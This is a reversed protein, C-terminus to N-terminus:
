EELSKRYARPSLSLERQFVQNMALASGFGAARAVQAIRLEKDSLLRKALELRLRRIEASVPRGLTAEFKRQLSRPAVCIGEAIQRVTLRHSLHKSIYQLAARVTEDEAAFYDTSERAIMGKPPVMITRKPPDEGAMLRDLLAAAEYGVREYNSDICTIMPPMVAVSRINDLVIVAVDRPVNWDRRQCLTILVRATWPAIVFIGTPPTVQDLFRVLHAQLKQWYRPDLCSGDELAETVCPIGQSAAQQAFASGFELAQRSDALGFYGLRRFGRATLHEAAMRGIRPADLYVGPTDPRAHQYWTNVFPIGRRRLQRQLAPAARAIVGHYRTAAVSPRTGALTPHEDVVLNWAAQERAYRQVGLLVGQHQLYPEDLQLALAIHRVAPMIAIPFHRLFNSIQRM